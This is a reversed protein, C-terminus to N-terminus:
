AADTQSDDDGAPPTPSPLAGSSSTLESADADPAADDAPLGPDSVLSPTLRASVTHRLVPWIAPVAEALATDLDPGGDALAAAVTDIREAALGRPVALGTTDLVADLTAIIDTGTM